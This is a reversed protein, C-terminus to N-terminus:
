IFCYTPNKKITIRSLFVCSVSYERGKRTPLAYSPNHNNRRATQEYRTWDTDLSSVSGESPAFLTDFPLDFSFSPINQDHRLRWLPNDLLEHGTEVPKLLEHSDIFDATASREKSPSATPGDFQSLLDLAKSLDDM